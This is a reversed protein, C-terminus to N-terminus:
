GGYWLRPAVSLAAERLELDQIIPELAEESASAIRYIPPLEPNLDDTGFLLPDDVIALGLAGPFIAMLERGICGDEYRDILYIPM